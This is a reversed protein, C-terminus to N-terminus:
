KSNLPQLDGAQLRSVQLYDPPTAEIRMEKKSNPHIFTLALSHLAFAGEAKLALPLTESISSLAIQSGYLADGVLPFGLAAAHARIQHRRGTVPRARILSLDLERNYAIPEFNTEASQLRLEGLYNKEPDYCRVKKARRYPSGISLSCKQAKEFHGCVLTLYEKQVKSQSFQDRLYHWTSPDKAALLVGTTFFDLRHVLGGDHDKLAAFDPNHKLQQLWLEVSNETANESQAASEKNAVSHVGAAKDVALLFEDEYIVAPPALSM